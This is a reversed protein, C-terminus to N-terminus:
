LAPGVHRDHNPPSSQGNAPSRAGSRGLLPTPAAPDPDLLARVDDYGTILTAAHERLLQHCGASAASTVPGPVAGVARGLRLAHEATTLAGSRYSAEVVVVADSLAAMLRARQVFRTRSPVMGPPAESVLLGSAAARALLEQNGVPYPRDLGGALVVITPGGAALAGRHAQADIGYGGGSVVQRGDRAAGGALDVAVQEGYSTAARSGTFTIRSTIPATLLSGDGKVWLAIPARRRLAQLGTPWRADDPTLVVLDHRATDDLLERVRDPDLRLAARRAWLEGAVPDLEDPPAAGTVVAVAGRAGVLELLRGTLEDGPECVTALIMRATREDAALAEIEHM